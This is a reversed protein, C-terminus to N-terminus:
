TVEPLPDPLKHIGLAKLLPRHHSKVPTPRLLTQHHLTLPTARLDDLLALAKPATMGLPALYRTELCRELFYGLVCVAVHGRVRQESWHRVPRLRLFGKVERFARELYVLMRYSRALDAASERTLDTVLLQLGDRRRVERVVDRNLTFTIVDQDELRLTFYKSQPGLSRRVAQLKEEGRLVRRRSRIETPLNRLAQLKERLKARREQRESRARVPNYVAVFRPESAPRKPPPKGETKARSQAQKDKTAREKEYAVGLPGPVDYVWLNAEVRQFQLRGPLAHQLLFTAIRDKNLCLGTLYHYGRAQVEAQNSEPLMGRDGVFVCRDIQFRERMAELIPLVTQQDLVNGAVVSHAIPLGDRDVLLALNIQPCDPRHDRSYGLQALPCQEGEFYTSTMDFFVLSLDRNFLNVLREHLSAELREQIAALTELARYFHHLSLARGTVGPLYQGALWREYCELKSGPEVLRHFIMAKLYPVV